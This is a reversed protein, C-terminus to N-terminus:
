KTEAFLREAYVAEPFVSRWWLDKTYFGENKACREAVANYFPDTNESLRALEAPLCFLPRSQLKNALVQAQEPDRSDKIFLPVDGRIRTQEQNLINKFQLNKPDRNSFFSADFIGREYFEQNLGPKHDGFIVIIVDRKRAKASAEIQQTFTKFEDIAQGLRAQYQTIGSDNEKIFPGHTNVTVLFMFQKKGAPAVKYHALAQNYLSFDKPWGDKRKWYMQDVFAIRQFGMKPYVTQRKWFTGFYNHMGITTYGVDALAHPLASIKDSFQGAFNQFDIGPLTYASLGTLAEFEAEATGGGYVPSIVRAESFGAQTLEAMKTPLRAETYCSECMVVVIDPSSPNEVAALAQSYFQHQGAKPKHATEATLMLHGLIGNQRANVRFNYNSYNSGLYQAMLPQAYASMKGTSDLQMGVLVCLILALGVRRKSFSPHRWLGYALAALLILAYAWIHWDMYGTLAMGQGVEFLDAGLLPESTAVEKIYSINLLLGELALTAVVAAWRQLFAAFFFYLLLSFGVRPMNWQTDVWIRGAILALIPLAIPICRQALPSSFFAPLKVLLCDHRFLTPIIFSQHIKTTTFYSRSILPM